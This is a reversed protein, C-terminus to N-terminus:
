PAAIPAPPVVIMLTRQDLVTQQDLAVCTGGLVQITVAFLQAHDTSPVFDNFANATYEVTTGATVNQFSAEDFTPPTANTPPPPLTFGSPTLSKIFDYTTHPSPLPNGATDTASGTAVDTVGFTMTRTLMTIGTVISTSVGTGSTSVQFVEPCLGDADVAAGAGSQGTCCQGEACGAPRTGLDWASPPVRAGTSTAFDTLYSVPGCSTGDIAAIGVVRGCIANLAAEAQGRTHADPLVSTDYPVTGCAAVDPEGPGHSIADTISVVVPLANTRFGVGGIGSHNAPVSTPAPGSLGSGTAVQYLGEIGSEPTDGGCGITAGSATRLGTVASGVLSTTGTIAQRLKFPQDITGDGSTCATSDDYPSVPFDEFAGVGFDTDPVAAQIGPIVTGSVSASLNAIEGSMSGTTDMLFFVDLAPIATSFDLPATINGGPDQYPLVLLPEAQAGTQPFAVVVIQAQATLTGVTATVLSTTATPAAFAPISLTGGSMAGVAANSVTFTAQSTQDGTTGDDFTGTVAFAQSTATGLDVQVLPNNPTLGISSLVRSVGSESNGAEGPAAGADLAGGPAGNCLYVTQTIENPELVGDGNTDVGVDVREGGAACNSGPPEATVEV